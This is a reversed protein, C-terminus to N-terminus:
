RSFTDKTSRVLEKLQSAQDAPANVTIEAMFRDLEQIVTMQQLQV